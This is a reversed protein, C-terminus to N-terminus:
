NPRPPDPMVPLFPLWAARRYKRCMAQNYENHRMIRLMQEPPCTAAPCAIIDHRGAIALFNRRRIALGCVVAVVAVAIMMRRVTFRANRPSVEIRGRM